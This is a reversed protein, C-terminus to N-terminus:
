STPRIIMAMRRLLKDRRGFNFARHRLTFHTYTEDHIAQEIRLLDPQNPCKLKRKQGNIDVSGLM